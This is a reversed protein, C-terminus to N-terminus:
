DGGSMKGALWARALEWDRQATVRSVDLVRGIQEVAMGGFLRMEAVRATRESSRALETLLEDLELVRMERTRATGADLADLTVHERAAGGGRKEANKRRSHDVLVHRMATAAVAMFHERGNWARDGGVMKLFAEHVLATPQLTHGPRGELYSSALMRLEGYVLPLLESVTRDDGPKARALIETVSPPQEM